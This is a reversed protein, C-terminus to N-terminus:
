GLMKELSTFNNVVIWLAQFKDNLFYKDGIRSIMKKGTLARASSQVMSTSVLGNRSMFVESTLGDVTGERAISYLLKKQNLTLSSLEQKISAEEHDLVWELTKRITGTNCTDSVPTMMFAVNLCFQIYYTFGDFLNYLNEFADETLVKGALAFKDVAFAMYEEIKIPSLETTTASRYFPKGATNFMRTIMTPESGSFIFSTNALKQIRSRLISEMNSTGKFQSVQQFEDIMIINPRDTTELFSFIEDLTQEPNKIENLSFSLTPTNSIPDYGIAAVLSKLHALFKDLIIGGNTKFVDLVARGLISTFEEFSTAELIDISITNFKEKIAPKIFCQEVMATKGIRRPAILVINHGNLLLSEMEELENKRGCFKEPAMAGKIVFPNETEM